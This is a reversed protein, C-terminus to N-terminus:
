LSKRYKRLFHHAALVPHKFTMRPGAFKMVEKIQSRMDTKFCHVTCEACVPKDVGFTCNGIRNQAYDSLKQCAECPEGGHHHHKCFMEVMIGITKVEKELNKGM